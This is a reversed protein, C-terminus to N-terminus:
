QDYSKSNKRNNKVNAVFKFLALKQQKILKEITKQYIPTKVKSLAEDYTVWKAEYFEKKDFNFNIKDMQLIYWLDYHTKCSHKPNNIHKITLDFLTNKVDAELQYGLEEFFERDVTSLPTENEEIHGGPPIWDNAKKHRGLYIKRSKLCVPVFFVCFHSKLNQSRLINGRQLRKRFQALTTRNIHKRKSLDTILSM